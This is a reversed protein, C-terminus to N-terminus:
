GAEPATETFASGVDDYIVRIEIPGKDAGTHQVTQTPQGMLYEALFKRAQADGRKAQQKATSVIDQWDQLTVTEQTIQYYREERSKNARGNPNGSHGKVFRGNTDRQAAM